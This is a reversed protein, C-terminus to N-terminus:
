VSPPPRIFVTPTAVTGHLVPAGVYVPQRTSRPPAIPTTTSALAPAHAACVTCAHRTSQSDKHFHAAQVVSGAALLCVLLLVAWRRKPFTSQDCSSVRM